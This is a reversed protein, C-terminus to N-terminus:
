PASPPQHHLLTTLKWWLEMSCILVAGGGVGCLITRLVTLIWDMPGGFVVLHLGAAFILVAWLWVVLAHGLAIHVADKTTM